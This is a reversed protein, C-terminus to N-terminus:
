EANVDVASVAGARDPTVARVRERREVAAPAEDAYEVGLARGGVGDLLLGASSRL